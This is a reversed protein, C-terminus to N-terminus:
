KKDIKEILYEIRSLIVCGITGIYYWLGVDRFILCLIM